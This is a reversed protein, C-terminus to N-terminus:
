AAREQQQLDAFYAGLDVVPVGARKRRMVEAYPLSKYIRQYTTICVRCVRRGSRMVGHVAYPHGYMCNLRRLAEAGPSTGRRVNVQPTVAELHLPNICARVRCLHDIERGNPIPGVFAEYSVRHAYKLQGSRGGIM